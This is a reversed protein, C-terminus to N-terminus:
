NKTYDQFGIYVAALALLLEIILGYGLTAGGLRTAYIIAGILALVGVVMLGIARIKAATLYALVVGLMAAITCMSGWDTTGSAAGFGGSTAWPLFIATFLLLSSIIMTPM